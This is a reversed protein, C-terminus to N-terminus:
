HTVMVKETLLGTTTVVQLIYLGSVLNNVDIEKTFENIDRGEFKETVVIQGSLDSLIFGTVKVDLTQMFSIHVFDNAPNPTIQLHSPSDEFHDNGKEDRQVSEIVDGEDLVVIKSENVALGVPLDGQVSGNTTFSISATWNSYQGNGCNTRVRWEYTTNSSLGSLFVPPNMFPSGVVDYWTGNPLRKQVTYSQAGSVPIWNLKATTTTVNTTLPNGPVNCTNCLTTFSAPSSWESMMGNPCNSKVRWEYTTCSYFGILHLISNGCTSGLNHWSGAPYRWQVSYSVAGPVTSWDFTATCTTIDLTALNGPTACSSSDGTTFSVDCTWLGALGGSCNARVRWHYTTNPSLNNLTTSTTNFPSGAVTSWTGNPLRIQVSYSQAGSVPLWNFTASTNTIYSTFTGNPIGCSCDLTTFITPVSWESSGGNTCNSRVRWEYATGPQFGILHLITNTWPGGYLDHWTGGALRYQVSYSVAGIVPSWDFTASHNTINFTALSDPADCSSIGTTTFYISSTWCSYQGGSCNTRVHWQYTTSSNLNHVTVSTSTFPNGPVSSWAGNPLRIQVSYSVAGPVASWNFTATSDTINTTSTNIPIGCNYSTLTTFSEPYSWDSYMGNPCNSRVRWEYTAGSQFGGLQLSTVTWPGGSLYYWTGNALRYQISYSVAGSVPSWNLRASTQTINTTSLMAPADCSSLGGTSFLIYASWNSSQGGSCNTKVHWQYATNPILNHATATTSTFPSGPLNSWIGNTLRIQVAYSQAGPVASWNFTATSDTINTTTINWPTSCAYNLTTFVSGISWASNMGYACNSRVRWEYATESLLGGVHLITNTWPGGSLNNWVGGAYRWQVSYSVAGSAPSWDWTATTQTIDLTILGDPTNCSLSTYASYDSNLKSLDLGTTPHGDLSIGLFFFLFSCLLTNKM